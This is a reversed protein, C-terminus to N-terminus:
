TTNDHRDVWKTNMPGADLVPGYRGTSRKGSPARLRESRYARKGSTLSNAVGLMAAFIEIQRVMGIVSGAIAAQKNFCDASGKDSAASAAAFGNTSPPKSGHTTQTGRM